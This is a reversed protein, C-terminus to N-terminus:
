YYYCYCIVDLYKTSADLYQPSLIELGQASGRFPRSSLSLHTTGHQLLGEHQSLPRHAYTFLHLPTLDAQKTLAPVVFRGSIPLLLLLHPSQLWTQLFLSAMTLHQVEAHGLEGLGRPSKNSIQCTEPEAEIEEKATADHSELSGLISPLLIPDSPLHGRGALPSGGVMLSLGALTEQLSRWNAPAATDRVWCIALPVPSVSWAPFCM